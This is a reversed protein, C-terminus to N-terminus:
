NTALFEYCVQQPKTIKIHSYWINLGTSRGQVASNGAAVDSRQSSRWEWLSPATRSACRCSCGPSGSTAIGPCPSPLHCWRMAQAAAVPLIAFCLVHLARTVYCTPVNTCGNNCHFLLLYQMNQSYPESLLRIMKQNWGKFGKFVSNFGMQGKSVKNPARWIRWTLLNITLYSKTVLM